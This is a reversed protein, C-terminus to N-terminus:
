SEQDPGVFWGDGISTFGIDEADEGGVPHLGITRLDALHGIGLVDLKDFLRDLLERADEWTSGTDLSVSSVYMVDDFWIGTSEEVLGAIQEWSHTSEGMEIEKAPYEEDRDTATWAARCFTMHHQSSNAFDYLNAGGPWFDVGMRALVNRDALRGDVLCIMLNYQHEEGADNERVARSTGM